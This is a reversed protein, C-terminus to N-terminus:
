PQDWGANSVGGLWGTVQILGMKTVLGICPHTCGLTCVKTFPQVTFNHKTVSAHTVPRLLKKAGGFKLNLALTQSVYVIFAILVSTRLFCLM